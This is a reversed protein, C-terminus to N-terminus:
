TLVAANPEALATAPNGTIMPLTFVQFLSADAYIVSTEQLVSSGKKVHFGAPQEYAPRLRVVQEVTTFDKKVEDAFGSQVAAYSNANHGFKVEMDARYINNARTNYKDYRLEDAVYFVILLCTALGISLGVVNIATFGKNRQLNRIAVKVYNRFMYRSNLKEPVWKQPPERNLILLEPRPQRGLKYTPGEKELHKKYGTPSKGTMEKFIRNFTTKSNFGAEFAIGLLTIHAYAPDQMKRVADMVRYENIFDNFGKKFVTNIVRSLEHPPLNLKEALSGLSLEPDQHYHNADMARKLWAGKARLEAPVSPKITAAAQAMMAAQPKLFAAAATWIIIIVFFTYFPYYVHIGLQNRYGFYDIVGCFLWLGWLLATAGLLRRLWRFELLSRDMLVPQLRRYFNRILKDSFYLYTIGSIFILLQLVTSSSEKIAPAQAALELLLPSFHLLDKRRFQYAPRTIKLVYFYLLPGLALLFQMPLRNWWPLYTELRIDIALIRMMWLVMTVLALALFRNASRNVTKTFYLLLAFTLGTFIAGLFALDYLNIHFTYSNM